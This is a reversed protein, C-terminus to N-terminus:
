VIRLKSFIKRKLKCDPCIRLLSNDGNIEHEWVRGCESCVAPKKTVPGKQKETQKQLQNIRQNNDSKKLGIGMFMFAREVAANEAKRSFFSELVKYKSGVYYHGTFFRTPKEVDPIILARYSLCDQDEMQKTQICGNPYQEHFITLKQLLSLSIKRKTKGTKTETPLNQPM